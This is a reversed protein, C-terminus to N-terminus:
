EKYCVMKSMWEFHTFYMEGHYDTSSVWYDFTKHSKFNHTSGSSAQAQYVCLNRAVLIHKLRKKERSEVQRDSKAHKVKLVRYFGNPKAYAFIQFSTTLLQLHTSIKTFSIAIFHWELLRNSFPSGHTNKEMKETKYIWVMCFSTSLGMFVYHKKGVLQISRM